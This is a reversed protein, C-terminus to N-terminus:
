QKEATLDKDEPVDAQARAHTEAKENAENKAAEQVIKKPIKIKGYKLTLFFITFNGVTFLTFLVIFIPDNTFSSYILLLIDGTLYSLWMMLSLDEAKKTVILKKIQPVYAYVLCVNGLIGIIQLTQPNM